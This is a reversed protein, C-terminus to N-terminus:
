PIIQAVMVPARFSRSIPGVTLHAPTNSEGVNAVALLPGERRNPRHM